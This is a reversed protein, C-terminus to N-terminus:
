GACRARHLGEGKLEVTDVGIHILLEIGEPTTIGLAHKTDFLMSLTGDCPSFITDGSPVVAMGPGMAGSAFVQDHVASLEVLQGNAPAVLTVEVGKDVVPAAIPEDAPAPKDEGVPALEPAM